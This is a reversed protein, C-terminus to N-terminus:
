AGFKKINSVNRELNEISEKKLLNWRNTKMKWLYYLTYEVTKKELFYHGSAKVFLETPKHWQTVFVYSFDNNTLLSKEKVSISSKILKQKLSIPKHLNNLDYLFADCSNNNNWNNVVFSKSNPSWFVDINRHYKLIETGQSTKKKFLFLKDPVEVYLLTSNKNAPSIANQIVNTKDPSVLRKSSRGFNLASKALAGTNCLVTLMLCSLLASKIKPNAFHMSQSARRFIKEIRACFINYKM